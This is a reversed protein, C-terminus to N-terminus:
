GQYVQLRMGAFTQSEDRCSRGSYTFTVPIQRYPASPAEAGDRGSRAVAAASRRRLASASSDTRKVRARCGVASSTPCPRCRLLSATRSKESSTLKREQM